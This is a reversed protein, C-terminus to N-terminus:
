VPGWHMWGDHGDSGETLVEGEGPPRQAAFGTQGGEDDGGEREADAGGGREEGDHFAYEERRKRVPPRFTDRHEPAGPLREVAGPERVVFVLAPLGPNRRKGVDRDVGVPRHVQGATVLRFSQAGRL